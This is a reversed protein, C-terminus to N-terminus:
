RSNDMKASMTNWGGENRGQNIPFGGRRIAQKITRPVVTVQHDLDGSCDILKTNDSDSNGNLYDGAMLIKM